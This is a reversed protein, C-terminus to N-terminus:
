AATLEIWFKAGAGLASELGVNGGMREVAKKVIALGIGTGEYEDGHLREFSEFIKQQYAPEVGIGQDEIWLRLRPGRRESWVRVNPRAGPPVFKAANGLLNSLCLALAARNGAVRGLPSEVRVDVAEPALAPGGSLTEAVVLELDVAEVPLERSSVRSYALIDRTLADMRGAARAVRAVYGRGKEGLNGGCETLLLQCYGALHRLPARLDHAVTSSFTEIQALAAELASTRERVRRELEANLRRVDEETRKRETSDTCVGLVGDSSLRRARVLLWIYGSSSRQFRLVIEAKTGEDLCRQLARALDARDSPHASEILEAASAPPKAFLEAVSGDWKLRGSPRDWEFLAAGSADLVARLRSDSM